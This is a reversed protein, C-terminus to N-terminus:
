VTISYSSPWTGNKPRWLEFAQQDQTNYMALYVVKQEFALDVSHERAIDQPCDKFSNWKGADGVCGLETRCSRIKIAGSANNSLVIHFVSSDGFSCDLLDAQVQNTPMCLCVTACLSLLILSRQMTHSFPGM